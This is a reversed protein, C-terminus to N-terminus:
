LTTDRKEFVPIIEKCILVIASRSPQAFVSNSPSESGSGGSM